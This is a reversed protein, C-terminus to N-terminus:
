VSPKFNSRSKQEQEIDKIDESLSDLVENHDEISEEQELKVTRIDEEIKDLIESKQSKHNLGSEKLFSQRAKAYGSKRFFKNLANAIQQIISFQKKTDGVNRELAISERYIDNELCFVLDMVSKKTQFNSIEKSMKSMDKEIEELSSNCHELNRTISKLHSQCNKLERQTRQAKQNLGYESNVGMEAFMDKANRQLNLINVDDSTLSQQQLQKKKLLREFEKFKRQERVLSATTDRQIKWLKKALKMTGNLQREVDSVEKILNLKKIDLTPM